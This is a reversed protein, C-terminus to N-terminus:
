WEGAIQLAPADLQDAFDPDIENLVSVVDVRRQRLADALAEFNRGGNTEAWQYWRSLDLWNSRAENPAESVDHWRIYQLGQDKARRRTVPGMAAPRRATLDLFFRGFGAKTTFISFLANIRQQGDVLQWLSSDANVVQRHEDDMRFVRSKETVQC